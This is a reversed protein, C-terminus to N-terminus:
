RICMRRLMITILAGLGLMGITAPEPIVTFGDGTIDLSQDVGLGLASYTATGTINTAGWNQFMDSWTLTYGNTVGGTFGTFDFVTVGSMTLTNTAAGMLIDYAIDTIEMMNTSGESLLVDGNFTMTGPSNGASLTSGTLMTVAQVTGTGGLMAGASVTIQTSLMSGNVVLTGNSVRTMGDYTNAGTMTLKGAGTKLLGIGSAGSIVGSLKLDATTKFTPYSTSSGSTGLTINQTLGSGASLDVLSELTGRTNAANSFTINTGTGLANINNLQVKSAGTFGLNGSWGSNDGSLKTTGGTFGNVNFNGSGNLKGAFEISSSGSNGNAGKSFTINNTLVVDAGLSWASGNFTVSGTGFANNNGIKVTGGSLLVPGSFTNNGSLTWTGSSLTLATTDTASHDQIAGSISNVGGAASVLTLTKSGAGTATINGSINLNTVSSNITAGGTTGALNITKTVTEVTAGTRNLTGTTAGSGINITGTGLNDNISAVSLTGENISVGGAFTNTGSLSLTGAGTKILSGTNTITGSLALTTASAVGFTGASSLNINNALTNGTSNSLTGGAMTLLGSGLASNNNAVLTGDNLVTGGGYTNTGFLSLTGTGNKIIGGTSGTIPADLQWSGVGDLTLTNAGLGISPLTSATGIRQRFLSSSNNNWIQSVGLALSESRNNGNGLTVTGAGADITIGGSGLTLTQSNTTSSFLVTNGTNRITMGALTFSNTLTITEGSNTSSQNLVVSDTSTPLVGTTGGSTANDSWNSGAWTGTGTNWYYTAAQASLSLGAVLM